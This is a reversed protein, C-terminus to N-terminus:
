YPASRSFTFPSDLPCVRSLSDVDIKRLVEFREAQQIAQRNLAATESAELMQVADTARWGKPLHEFARREASKDKKSGTRKLGTESKKRPRGRDMISGTISSSESVNRRHLPVHTDSRPEVASKPTVMGSAFDTCQEKPTELAADSNWSRPSARSENSASVPTPLTSITMASYATTTTSLPTMVTSSPTFPPRAKPSDARGTHISSENSGISGSRLHSRSLQRKLPSNNSSQSQSPIVLPPLDKPSQPPRAM